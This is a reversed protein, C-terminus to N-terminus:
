RRTIWLIASWCCTTTKMWFSLIFCKIIRCIPIQANLYVLHIWTFLTILIHYLRYQLSLMRGDKMKPFFIFYYGLKNEYSETKRILDIWTYLKDVACSSCAMSDSYSVFKLSKNIQTNEGMSRHCIYKMRELPLSIKNQKLIGIKEKMVRTDDNCVYAYGLVLLFLFFIMLMFKNM